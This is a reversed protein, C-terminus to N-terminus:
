KLCVNQVELSQSSLFLKFLPGLKTILCRANFCLSLYRRQLMSRFLLPSANPLRDLSNSIKKLPPDETDFFISLLYMAGLSALLNVVTKNKESSKFYHSHRHLQPFVRKVIFGIPPWLGHLLALQELEHQVVARAFGRSGSRYGRTNRALPSTLLVQMAIVFRGGLFIIPMTGAAHQDGGHMPDAPM